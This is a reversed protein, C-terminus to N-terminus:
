LPLPCPGGVAIPLRPGAACRVAPASLLGAGRLTRLPNGVWIWLSQPEGLQIHSLKMEIRLRPHWLTKEFDLKGAWREWGFAARTTLPLAPMLIM